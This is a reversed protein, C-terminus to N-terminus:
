RWYESSPMKPLKYFKEWSVCSLAASWGRARIVHGISDSHPKPKRHSRFLWGKDGNSPSTCWFTSNLKASSALTCWNANHPRLCIEFGTSFEETDRRVTKLLVRFNYIHGRKFIRKGPTPRWSELTGRSRQTQASIITPTMLPWCTM